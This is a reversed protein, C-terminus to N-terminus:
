NRASGSHIGGLVREALAVARVGEAGSAHPCGDGRVTRVLADLEARLPERERVPLRETELVGDTSRVVHAERRDYDLSVCGEPGFMRLRRVRRDAVRSATVSAVCGSPYTIRANAVDEHPGVVTVGTAEVGVAEEGVLHNVLDLDHIMLDLVVGVDSARGSHPTLRHVEIYRPRLALERAAETVPNFREVMGVQLFAGGRTAAAVLAEADRATGGIPKEILCHVGRELLPEAVYRHQGTPVAISVVDPPVPLEEISAVLPVDLAAAVARPGEGGMDVDVLGVLQVGQLAMERYIRAHHRGFAGVGVVAAQLPMVGQPAEVEMSV